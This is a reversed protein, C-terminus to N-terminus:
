SSRRGLAPAVAADVSSPEWRLSSLYRRIMTDAERTLEVLRMRGDTPHRRTVVLERRRLAAICRLTTTAPVCAGISAASVSVVRGESSALFLDLLLDWAPEVFLSAHEGFADSRMRRQEYLMRAVAEQGTDEPLPLVFRRRVSRPANELLTRLRSVAGDLLGPM